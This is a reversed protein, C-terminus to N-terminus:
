TLSASSSFALYNSLFKTRPCFATVQQDQEEEVAELEEPTSYGHPAPPLPRYVCPPLALVQGPLKVPRRKKRDVLEAGQAVEKGHFFGALFPDPYHYRLASLCHGMYKLHQVAGVRNHYDKKCAPCHTGTIYCHAVHRIGHAFTRHMAKAKHSPFLFACVNCPWFVNEDPDLLIQAEM